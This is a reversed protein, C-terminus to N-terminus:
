SNPSIQRLEAPRADSREVRGIGDSDFPEFRVTDFGEQVGQLLLLAAGIL